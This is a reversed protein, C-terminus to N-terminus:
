HVAVLHVTCMSIVCIMYMNKYIHQNHIRQGVDGFVSDVLPCIAM